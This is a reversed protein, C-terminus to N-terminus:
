MVRAMKMRYNFNHKEVGNEIKCRDLSVELPQAPGMRGALKVFDRFTTPM